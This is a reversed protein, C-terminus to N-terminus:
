AAIPQPHCQPFAVVRSPTPEACEIILQGADIRIRLAAGIVLGAAELWEGQIKIQPVERRRQWASYVKHTKMPM